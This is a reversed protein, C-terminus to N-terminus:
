LFSSCEARAAFFAGGVRSSPPALEEWEKERLTHPPSSRREFVIRGPSGLCSRSVLRLRSIKNTLCGRRTTTTDNATARGDQGHGNVPPVGTGSGFPVM